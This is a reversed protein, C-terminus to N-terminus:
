KKSTQATNLQQTQGKRQGQWCLPAFALPLSLILIDFGDHNEARADTSISYPSEGLKSLTSLFVTITRSRQVRIHRSLRADNTQSAYYDYSM